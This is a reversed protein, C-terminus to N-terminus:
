KANARINELVAAGDLGKSKMDAIWKEEIPAQVDIWKQQEEASLEYVTLNSKEFAALTDKEMQDMTTGLQALAEKAATMMAEQVNAPLTQWADENIVYGYVGGSVNIGTTVYKSAENIKNSNASICSILTGDVTGRSMAEYLETVPIQVPIAGFATIIDDMIGGSSRIKLGKIDELTKVQKKNTLLQFSMNAFPLVPRISNSLFDNELVPSTSAVEWIALNGSACSTWSGSLAGAGTILPMRSNFYPMPVYGVDAIGQSMIDLMDNTSGMQQSPYIEFEVQGNTLETVRKTWVMLSNAPVYHNPAYIDAVKLVIKEAPAESQPAASASASATPAPTGSTSGGSCGSFLAAMLAITLLLAINRRATEKQNKKM